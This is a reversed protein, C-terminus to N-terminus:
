NNILLLFVMLLLDGIHVGSLQSWATASPEPILITRLLFSSFLGYSLAWMTKLYLSTHILFNFVDIWVRLKNSCCVFFHHLEETNASYIECQSSFSGKSFKSFLPQSYHKSYLLFVIFVSKWFFHATELIVWDCSEM